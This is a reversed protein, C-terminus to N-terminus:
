QTNGPSSNASQQQGDINNQTAVCVTLEKIAESVQQATEFNKFAGAGLASTAISTVIELAKDPTM